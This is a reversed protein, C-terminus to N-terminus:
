QIMLQQDFSNPEAMLGVSAKDYTIRWHDLIDRGLLSPIDAIDPSPSAIQVAIYYIYICKGPDTFALIAQEVFHKSLGGIGRCDISGTLQAYDVNLRRGDIPM